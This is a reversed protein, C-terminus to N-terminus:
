PPSGRGRPDDLRVLSAILNTLEAPDIPKTVHARFGATLARARDVARTFATLAIAPVRGGEEAPLARVRRILSYGDEGPMGIDSILLDPPSRVFAEFAEPASDATEVRAGQGELIARVLERADPDDDIALIRLGVLEPRFPTPPRPASSVPTSDLRAPREPAAPLSVRFRAGRGEGESFAEVTGDHSDVLHKVISLGLGLGGHHRTLGGEAQRFREFVHPLFDPAIGQGTDGVSLEIAAGDRRVGVEIAGGPPTFKLANSLLNWAIQELRGEDGLVQASADLEARLTVGKAEAAPRVSELASGVVAAVAMRERKLQLKGSLIRSVDLLDDIVQSQARANRELTELVRPQGEAPVQGERLMRVWGLIANLPTRLEHSVTALFEDKLQNAREAEGRAVRERELLAGRELEQRKQLTIDNGQVFIGTVAGSPDVIPQYVFDVYREELTSGPQRQLLVPLGRGVFPQGTTFALELKEFFGQGELEPLAQRIARDLVPRHGVLQDYAQNSLEFVHEPGRLFCMFGPAQEFLRRLHLLESSLTQNAEEAHMARGLVSAEIPDSAGPRAEASPSRAAERLRHLETVDVTHQLIFEVRQDEGFIPTHTASWYREELAVGESGARPVRYPIVALVDPEGTALVREFSERLRRASANGPDAPDHPFSEFVERGILADRESRTARLYADNAAVYRLERDLVMYPNPSHDFLARFDAGGPTKSQGM